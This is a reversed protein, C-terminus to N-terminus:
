SPTCAKLISKKIDSPRLGSKIAEQRASAILAEFTDPDPETITKLILLDDKGIVVFQSGAKLNLQKRIIEPIVVQGKSSMKTTAMEAM